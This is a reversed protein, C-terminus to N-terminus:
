APAVVVDLLADKNPLHYYIAMPTVGLRNSLRRMSVRELGETDALEIAARVVTERDLKM